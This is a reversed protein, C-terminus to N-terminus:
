VANICHFESGGLFEVNQKFAITATLYLVQKVTPIHITNINFSLNKADSTMKPITRMRNERAVIM